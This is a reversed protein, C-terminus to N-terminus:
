KGKTLANERLGGSVRRIAINDASIRWCRARSCYPSVLNGIEANVTMADKAARRRHLHLRRPRRRRCRCRCRCRRRHRHRRQIAKHALARFLAGADFVALTERNARWLTEDRSIWTARRTMQLGCTKNDRYRIYM